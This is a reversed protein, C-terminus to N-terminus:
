SSSRSKLSTTLSPSGTQDRSLLVYKVIGKVVGDAIDNLKREVLLNKRDKFNTLFLCEVLIAPMKAGLLVYFPATKM